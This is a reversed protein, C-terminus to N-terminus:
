AALNLLFLELLLFVFRLLQKLLNLQNFTSSYMNFLVSLFDLLGFNLVVLNILLLVACPRCNCLTLLLLGFILFITFQYRQPLLNLNILLNFM